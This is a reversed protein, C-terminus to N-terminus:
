VIQDRVVLFMVLGVTLAVLVTVIVVETPITTDFARGVIARNQIQTELLLPIHQGRQQQRLPHGHEAPSIFDPPSLLTIVVGIALVVFETPVLPIQRRFVADQESEDPLQDRQTLLVRDKTTAPEKLSPLDM